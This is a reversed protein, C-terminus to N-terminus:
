ANYDVKEFIFGLTTNIFKARVACQPDIQRSGKFIRNIISVNKYENNNYIYYEAGEISTPLTIYVPPLLISTDYSSDSQLFVNSSTVRQHLLPVTYWYGEYVTGTDPDTYSMNVATLFQFAGGVVGNAIINNFTSNGYQDVSWTPNDNEDEIIVHGKLEIQDAEITANSIENDVWVEIVAQTSQNSAIMTAMNSSTVIGAGQSLEIQGQANVIYDGTMLQAMDSRLTLKSSASVWTDNEEDYGASTAFAEIRDGLNEIGAATRGKNTVPSWDNFNFTEGDAKATTCILTENDLLLQANTVGYWLDGVDYPPTPQLVFCRIKEDATEQADAAIELAHITDADTVEVWRYTNGNKEFRYVRGGGSGASISKNFYLDQVHEAYESASWSSAPLNNLTPIETGYWIVFQSDTQEKVDDLDVNLNEIQNTINDLYTDINGLSTSIFNGKIVNNQYNLNLTPEPLTYSNIGRYQRITSGGNTTSDFCIASKRYDYNSDNGKYGLQVITDEAKPIDSGADCDTKSLVVYGEDLENGQGDEGYNVEIVKRWYYRNGVVGDSDKDLNFTQSRALDDVRFMCRVKKQTGPERTNYYCKYGNETEEVRSIELGGGPTIWQIGGVYYEEEVEIEHAILRKRVNVNDIDLYYNEGDKYISAGHADRVYDNSSVEMGFKFGKLSTIFGQATDDIDKRLYRMDGYAKILSQIQQANYGGAGTGGSVISDIQQQMRQITGVTKDNRLTIEYQPILEEGEKITLQDIIISGDIGLDEDSFLLLDGEKITDHISTGSNLIANDHQRQMFINDVKPSYSYRVYDNKALYAVAANYLRTSAANIYAPPMSIYLLVFKDGSSVNYGYYPFVLGLSADETRKCELTYYGTVEDQTVNVIEFERGACMGTKMSIAPTQGEILYDRIDFGLDYLTITFNPINVSTEGEPIEWVGDDTVQEASQVVDIHVGNYTMGEISPYIEENGDSGDFFVTGERVGLQAANASDIYPDQTTTPFGPLMLHTVAMNNPIYSNGSGNTIKNYYRPPLNKESGYARLRTIIAQDPEANREIEFLGNGKGYSFMSGVAIGATGITITRGRIIFNAGFETNALALADWVKINSVSISVDTKGVFEPHVTVTWANAGTYVRNLNAQIRSALDSVTSCFFSFNPLATFHINNDNIVYDLFDARTLEDSLSNFKIKEYKFSDGCKQRKATKIVSPDYNIEFREGRYVLFDGIHFDIPIPSMIDVTVSCEGMFTGNYELKRTTCRVNEGTKDFITFQMKDYIYFFSGVM